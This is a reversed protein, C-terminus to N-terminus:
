RSPCDGELQRWGEVDIVVENYLPDRRPDNTGAQPLGGGIRIRGGAVSVGREDVQAKRILGTVEIRTREHLKIEDLVKKPGSLRLRRAPEIDSRVPEHELREGVIFTRGRACGPVAIRESDKPVEKEQAALPACVALLLAGLPLLKTM